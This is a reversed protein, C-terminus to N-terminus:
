ILDTDEAQRRAEISHGGGVCGDLFASLQALATLLNQTRERKTQHATDLHFQILRDTWVRWSPDQLRECFERYTLLREEDHVRMSEGISPQIVYYVGHDALFGRQVRLLLAALRTDDAASLRLYPFDERLKKLQAFLCATLYVSSILACGPGNFWAADKESM